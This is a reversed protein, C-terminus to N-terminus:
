ISSWSYTVYPCVNVTRFWCIPCRGAVDLLLDIMIIQMYVHMEKQQCAFYLHIAVVNMTKRGKTFGHEVTLTYLHTAALCVAESLHMVNAMGQIKESAAAFGDM